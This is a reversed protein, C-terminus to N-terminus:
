VVIKGPRTIPLPAAAATALLTGDGNFGVGRVWSTEVRKTLVEKGTAADWVHVNGDHDGGALQKGDPSFALSWVINRDGELSLVGQDAAGPAPPPPPEASGVLLAGATFWMLGFGSLFKAM